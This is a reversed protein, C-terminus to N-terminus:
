DAAVPEVARRLRARLWECRELDTNGAEPPVGQALRRKLAPDLRQRDLPRQRERHWNELKELRLSPLARKLISHAERLAARKNAALQVLKLADSQLNLIRTPHRSRRGEPVVATPAKRVADNLGEFLWHVTRALEEDQWSLVEGLVNLVAAIHLTTQERGALRDRQIM